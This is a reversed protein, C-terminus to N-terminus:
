AAILVPTHALLTGSSPGSAKCRASLASRTCFPPLHREFRMLLPPGVRGGRPATHELPRPRSRRVQGLLGCCQRAFERAAADWHAPAMLDAYPSAGPRRVWCLCGMLRRIDALASAQFRTFHARAYGLAAVAGAARWGRSLAQSCWGCPQAPTSRSSAQRSGSVELRPCAAEAHQPRPQLPHILRVYIKSKSEDIRAAMLMAPCPLAAWASPPLARSPPALPTRAGQQQLTRLFHLRHLQFEFAEAGRADRARLRERHAGAWALAPALNRAHVQARARRRQSRAGAAGAPGAHQACAAPVAPAARRSSPWPRHPQLQGDARLAVRSSCCRVACNSYWLSSVCFLMCAPALAHVHHLRWSVPACVASGLGTVARCGCSTARGSLALAEASAATAQRPARARVQMLIEHLETFPEKLAEGGAV